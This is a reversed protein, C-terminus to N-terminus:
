KDILTTVTCSTAATEFGPPVTGSLDAVEWKKSGTAAFDCCGVFVRTSGSDFKDQVDQSEREQFLFKSDAGGCQALNVYWEFVNGIGAFTGVVSMVAFFGIGIAIGLWINKITKTGSEIKEPEGASSIIKLGAFISLGIWAVVMFALVLTLLFSIASLVGNGFIGAANPLFLPVGGIVTQSTFRTIPALLKLM